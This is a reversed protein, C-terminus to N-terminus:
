WFHSFWSIPRVRRAPEEYRRRSISGVPARRGRAPPDAARGLALVVALRIPDGLAKAGAAWLELEEVVSLNRRVREAKPRVQRGSFRKRRPRPM